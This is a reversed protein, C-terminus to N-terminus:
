TILCADASIFTHNVLQVLVGTSASLSTLLRFMLLCPLLSSMLLQLAKFDLNIKKSVASIAKDSKEAKEAAADIENVLEDTIHIVHDDWEDRRGDNDKLRQSVVYSLNLTAIYERMRGKRAENEEIEKLAFATLTDVAREATFSAKLKKLQLRHCPMAYVVIVLKCGPVPV